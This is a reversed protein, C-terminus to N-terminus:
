RVKLGDRVLARFWRVGKKFDGDETRICMEMERLFEVRIRGKVKGFM